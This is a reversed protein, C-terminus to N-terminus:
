PFSTRIQYENVVIKCQIYIYICVCFECATDETYLFSSASKAKFFM